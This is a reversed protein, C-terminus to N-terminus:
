RFLSPEFLSNIFKTPKAESSMVQDQPHPRKPKNVCQKFARFEASEKKLDERTLEYQIELQNLQDRLQQIVVGQQQMTTQAEQYQSNVTMLSTTCHQLTTDRSALVKEMSAIVLGQKISHSRIMKLEARLETLTEELTAIRGRNADTISQAIELEVMPKLSLCATEHLEHEVLDFDHEDDTM